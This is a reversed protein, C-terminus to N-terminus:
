DLIIINGTGFSDLDSTHLSSIRFTIRQATGVWGGNHVNSPATSSGWHDGGSILPGPRVGDVDFVEVAYANDRDFDTLPDVMTIQGWALVRRPLGLDVLRTGTGGTSKLGVLPVTVFDSVATRFVSPYLSKIGRIDFEHLQHQKGNIAFFMVADDDGSHRLGLAHGIEHIATTLLDEKGLLFMLLPGLARSDGWNEADDFHIRGDQPFFAHAFVNFGGSGSGDFPSGDGHDGVEWSVIFDASAQTFTRSFTLPILESWVDFAEQIIAAEGTMDSTGRLLFWTLANRDWRNGTFVFPDSDVTGPGGLEGPGFDPVPCRRRKMLRMTELTLAGSFDLKTFGQFHRLALSAHKCLLTKSCRCKTMYGFATLYDKAFAVMGNKRGAKVLTDTSARTKM